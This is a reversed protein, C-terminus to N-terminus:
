VLVQQAVFDVIQLERETPHVVQQHAFQRQAAGDPQPVRTQRLRVTEGGEVEVDTGGEEEFPPSGQKSLGIELYM